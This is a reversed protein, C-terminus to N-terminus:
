RDNAPMQQLTSLFLTENKANSTQLPYSWLKVYFPKNCFNELRSSVIIPANSNHAAHGVDEKLKKINKENTGSSAIASFM